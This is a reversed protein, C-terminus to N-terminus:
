HLFHPCETPGACIQTWHIGSGTPQLACPAQNTLQAYGYPLSCESANNIYYWTPDGTNGGGTTNLRTMVQASWDGTGGPPNDQQWGWSPVTENVDWCYWSVGSSDTYSVTSASTASGISLAFAGAVSLSYFTVPVNPAPYCGLFTIPSTTSSYLQGQYPYIECGGVAGLGIAIALVRHILIKM